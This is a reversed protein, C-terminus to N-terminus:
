DFEVTFCPSFYKEPIHKIKLWNPDGKTQCGKMLEDDCSSLNFEKLSQPLTPLSRINKCGDIVLTELSTLHEMNGPLADWRCESLMLIRLHPFAELEPGAGVQGCRYFHLAQLDKPGSNLRGVMWDPYRSGRYYWIYLSELGVPPCLGELVKAAVEATCREIHGCFSLTMERLREKVALNAELAEEKSKVNGLGYICLKGRLKNLDRLQKIEYGEENKVIFDAPITQLSSLRGIHPFRADKCFIHRLNTLDAFNFASINGSAFDLLQIHLLKALSSPLIVKCSWSTPFALYRLHKLQIIFEPLLFERARFPRYRRSRSYKQKLAIALVRLKPLRLCIGEIVNEEVPADREVGNIILTRLNELGLIKRTIMEANYKEVFLHRVDRPVDGTWGERRHGRENEIRFCDTGTIKNVLDHLLDHITFCDTNTGDPQLFSSSVLEQIYVEAVDEMEETACSTKVFGQAIWLHVLEDKKLKFRTPFINCFEFCRRIDPNLKHYSWWLAHMTDNLMDLKAVNRWVNINPDSTCGRVKTPVVSILLEVTDLWGYLIDAVAINEQADDFIDEVDERAHRLWAAMEDLTSVHSVNGRQMMRALDVKGLTEELEPIIKAKFCLYSLIKPALLAFIPSLLWGMLIVTWGVTPVDWATAMSNINNGPSPPINLTGGIVTANDEIWRCRVSNIHCRQRLWQAASCLNEEKALKELIELGELMLEEAMGYAASSGQPMTLTADFAAMTNLYSVLEGSARVSPAYVDM